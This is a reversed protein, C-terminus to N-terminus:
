VHLGGGAGGPVAGSPSSRTPEGVTLPVLEHVGPIGKLEVLFPDGFTFEGSTGVLERVISSVVVQGGQAAAAVRAAKNVTLGIVDDGTHVVDGSHVGIRVDFPQDAFGAQLDAACRLATRAGTFAVLAGDGLMKLVTGGHAETTSRVFEDHEEIVERWKADGMETALATSDEIDTFMLTATGEDLDFMEESDISGLLEDLTTTLTVGLLEEDSVPVSGHSLVIRWIGRELRFVFTMRFENAEMAEWAMDFVGVGWGIDGAQFAELQVVSYDFAPMERLQAEIVRLYGSGGPYIEDPASGLARFWSEESYYSSLVEFDRDKWAQFLRHIIAEIEHSRVPDTSTV